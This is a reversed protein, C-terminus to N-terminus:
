KIDFVLKIEVSREDADCILKLNSFIISTVEKQLEEKEIDETAKVHIKYFVHNDKISVEVDGFNDKDKETNVDKKLSHEAVAKFVNKNIGLDGNSCYNELYVYNKM